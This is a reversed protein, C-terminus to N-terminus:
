RTVRTRHGTRKRPRARVPHVFRRAEDALTLCEDASLEVAVFWEKMTRAGVVFVRGAGQGVLEDIRSAPLKLVLEGRASVMAFIKGDVKLAGAGFGRGGRPGGEFADSLRRWVQEVNV